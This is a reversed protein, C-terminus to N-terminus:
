HCKFERGGGGSGRLRGVSLQKINEIAMVEYFYLHISPNYFLLALPIEYLSNHTLSLKISMGSIKDNQSNRYSVGINRASHM